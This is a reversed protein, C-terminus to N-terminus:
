SGALKDKKLDEAVTRVCEDHVKPDVPKKKLKSIPPKHFNKIMESLEKASNAQLMYEGKLAVFSGDKVRSIKFGSTYDTNECSEKRNM